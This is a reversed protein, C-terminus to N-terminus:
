FAFLPSGAVAQLAAGYVVPSSSFAHTDMAGLAGDEAADMASCADSGFYSDLLAAAREYIVENPHAQLEELRQIGGAEDFATALPNLQTSPEHCREGHVIGGGVHSSADLLDGAAFITATADLALRVADPDATSLMQVLPPALSHKSVLLSLHSAAAPRPM